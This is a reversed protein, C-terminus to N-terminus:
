RAPRTWNTEQPYDLLIRPRDVEVISLVDRIGVGMGLANTAVIIGTPDSRFRELIGTTHDQSSYFADRGLNSAMVGVHTKASGCLIVRGTSFRWM